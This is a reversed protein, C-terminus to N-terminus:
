KMLIMKRTFSQLSTKLQYFYIGSPVINSQNDKGYWIFSHQGAALKQNTLSKILEGKVNYICLNVHDSQSLNFSIKTEPNFPNPYNQNLVTKAPILDPESDVFDETRFTFHMVESISASEWYLDLELQGPSSGYGISFDIGLQSNRRFEVTWPFNLLHCLEDDYSHCWMVSWGAPIESSELHIDFDETAGTNTVWLTDSIFQVYEGSYAPGVLDYDFDPPVELDAFLLLASMVAFLIFLNRKLM